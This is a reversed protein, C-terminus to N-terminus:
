SQGRAVVRGALFHDIIKSSSSMVKSFALIYQDLLAPDASPFSPLKIMENNAAETKPLADPFYQPLRIDNRGELRAIQAFHGETFFPQQHLLPYRPLAAECGEARLAEVPIDRGGFLGLSIFYIM